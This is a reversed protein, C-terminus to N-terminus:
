IIKYIMKYLHINKQNMHNNRHELIMMKIMMVDDCRATSGHCGLSAVAQFFTNQSSRLPQGSVSDMVTVQPFIISVVREFNRVSRSPPAM